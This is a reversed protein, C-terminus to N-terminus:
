EKMNVLCVALKSSNGLKIFILKASLYLKEDLCRDGVYKLDANLNEQLMTELEVM